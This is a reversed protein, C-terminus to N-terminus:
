QIMQFQDGGPVIGRLRYRPIYGLGQLFLSLADAVIKQKDQMADISDDVRLYSTIAPNLKSVVEITDDLSGSNQSAILLVPCTLSEKKLNLKSQDLHANLFLAFNHVNFAPHTYHASAHGSYITKRQRWYQRLAFKSLLQSPKNAGSLIHAITRDKLPSLWGKPTSTFNSLFLGNVLEPYKRAFRILINAGTGVQILPFRFCSFSLFRKGILLSSM